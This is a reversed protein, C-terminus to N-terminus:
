AASCFFQDDGEMKTRLVLGRPPAIRAPPLFQFVGPVALQEAQVGFVLPGHPDAASDCTHNTRVRGDGSLAVNPHLLESDMAHEAHRRITQIPVCPCYVCHLNKMLLQHLLAIANFSICVRVLLSVDGENLTPDSREKPLPDPVVFENVRSSGAEAPVI